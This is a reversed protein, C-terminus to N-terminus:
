LGFAMMVFCDLGLGDVALKRMVFGLSDDVFGGVIMM